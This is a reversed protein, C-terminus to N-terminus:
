GALVQHQCLVKTEREVLELFQTQFRDCGGKQGLRLSVGQGFCKRRLEVIQPLVIGDLAVDVRLSNYLHAKWHYCEETRVLSNSGIEPFHSEAACGPTNAKAREPITAARDRM